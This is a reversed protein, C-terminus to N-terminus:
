VSLLFYLFQISDLNKSRVHLISSFLGLLVSECVSSLYVEIQLLLHKFFYFDMLFIANTESSGSQRLLGDQLIRTM